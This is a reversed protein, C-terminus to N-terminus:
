LLTRAMQFAQRFDVFMPEDHLLLEKLLAHQLKYKFDGVALAGIGVAGPCNVAYKLPAANDTRKVGEIGLPPVANVDAAVKLKGAEALTGAKLVQIGARATCFVVDASHLLHAKDAESAACTGELQVGFM